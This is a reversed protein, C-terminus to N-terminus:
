KVEIDYFLVEFDENNNPPNWALLYIKKFYDPNLNKYPYNLGDLFCSIRKKRRRKIMMEFVQDKKPKLLPIEEIPENELHIVLGFSTDTHRSRGVHFLFSEWLWNDTFQIPSNSMKIGALLGTDLRM